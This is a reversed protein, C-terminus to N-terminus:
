QEALSVLRALALDRSSSDSENRVIGALASADTLRGSAARRIRADGDDTALQILTAQEADDLEQLGELRVAPDAHKIKPQPRLKDLLKM